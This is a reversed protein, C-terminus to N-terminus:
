NGGPRLRGARGAMPRGGFKLSALWKRWAPARLLSATPALPPANRRNAALQGALCAQDAATLRVHAIPLLVSNELALHQRIHTSFQRLREREGVTLVAGGALRKLLGVTAEALAEHKRHQESLTMVLQDISDESRCARILAPFLLSEEELIHRAFDFELFEILAEVASLDFGGDALSSLM